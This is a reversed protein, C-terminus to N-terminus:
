RVIQSVDLLASPGLKLAEVGARIKALDGVILVTVKEVPVYQRAVRQVDGATVATIRPGLESVSSLPLGFTGLTVFQGAIQANTEFSGPIALAVYNKARELEANDVPVDRIAKIEKFIEVLSSDTVNTRVSSSIQFPGPVPAFRFDSSIGYTYGKTERLNSNLRSSFSGGLITNMVRLAPYDPSLRDAGPVGIYIVSQAAGPKDVLYVKVASNSVANATVAPVPLPTSAAWAGFRSQLMPKIEGLSIDGVVIFRARQPVYAGAYFSRVRASDLAAITASDGSAPNHYPHGEPFMLQNFAIAALQTPQDKRQLIGALALDRQKRVDTASFKPRLVVDAMLDLAAALSRKPVNLSVSFADSGANAFLNAGLFALESQLANADRSGAGETLMRTAFSALGPQKADLRSGGDVVLTLQVIPVEHQGVLQIAVGNGLASREVAPLKLAPTKGLGPVKTRDFTGQASLAPTMLAIALIAHASSQVIRNM